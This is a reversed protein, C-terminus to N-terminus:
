SWLRTAIRNFSLNFFIGLLLRCFFHINSLRTVLTSNNLFSTSSSTCHKLCPVVSPLHLFKFPTTIFLASPFTPYKFPFTALFGHIVVAMISFICFVLFHFFLFVSSPLLVYRRRFLSSLLSVSRALSLHHSFSHLSNSSNSRLARGSKTYTFTPCNVLFFIVLLGPASHPGTHLLIDVLKSEQYKNSVWILNFFVQTSM